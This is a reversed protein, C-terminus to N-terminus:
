LRQNMWSVYRSWASLAPKTCVQSLTGTSSQIFGTVRGSCGSSSTGGATGSGQGGIQIAMSSALGASQIQIRGSVNTNSGATYTGIVSEKYASGTKYYLAYLYSDGSAACVDDDPVFTPFYLIGGLLTASAVNRERSDPFVTYWGDMETVSGSPTGQIKDVLESYTTVGTVGTVQNTGSACVTCVTVASVDLLNKKECSTVSSQTCGGTVVPDKIGFFYQTETNTKDAVSFYRGTGFFIWIKSMDDATVTPAAFIPGVKNTGTCPAPSCSFNALVLTPVRAGGGAIGWTSLTPSGSSTTLRYMKGVWTPTTDSMVTGGYVVDTRYDLNIDVSILDGMFSSGDSTSFITVLSNNAGPGAALDVAAVRSTQASSGNYATPGSGVVMLWKANTNDTKGDASPNGRVITPYSTSLGQGSDTFMMLLKPDVDPNTIDLVFYGSYFTRTQVGSGFDATVTMPPAGSAALCAGCSGGLRFGGILITGWGNPHNADATFIRADTVKPKLDVYYVHSYDARTLWQLHPLLQYPIFGWLEQGMLPGSSNDTANRTFWGHEIVTTTTSDDGRHYYGANFAHIMGDNAGVYTVQRRNRYQQYFAAYSTDGYIVDYREKPAGVTTPTSHIPDGLKWVKLSGSVTLQRNRLTAQDACVSPECGRIFNIIGTATASDVARLYPQLTTANATTFDIQEGADVVGDNDTDVWTLIKRTSADALALQKGAEWIAAVDTLKKDQDTPTASDAKGDGNADVYKDVKVDDAAADYRNKIIKDQEYVLKGDGNTDERLNGFADLFLAQTYGTWKVDNLTSTELTSPFFYSQYLAGEGTSSTALVSVSTGSSSKRLISTITALLKDKVEDANSSEFYADPIGDPTSSGTYNNEKDWEKTKDPLQYGSDGPKDSDEFGGLKATHMLIERGAINGFTFFTYVIVNQMGPLDHGDALKVPTFAPGSYGPPIDVRVEPARLDTIHAWYAVDDLYHAGLYPSPYLNYDTKHEALLNSAPTAVNTNCTGDAAHITTNGGTCHQGHKGHAFDRIAVPVLNNDDATPQGDTVIIIFTKCCNVVKSPSAWVPTHDSGYFFPDRGCASTIYGAPCTESGILVDIESPGISGVGTAQFAVGSSGAGSFAIPYAYASPTSASNIQAIYRVGDYLSESLPTFEAPYSEGVADLMAAMNTNFTEVSTGSWDISQRSGIGTLVRGGNGTGKFELLGFRAKSGIQQIVGTPESTLGLKLEFKTTLTGDTCSTATDAPATSDDDVCFSGQMGATGGRLHIYINGPLLPTVATPVRGTYGNAGTRPTATTTFFGPLLAFTRVAVITKLSPTGTAPCTGDAARAVACDGGSMAKKLADFRRFTAWNLFNGDWETGLCGSTISAKTTGPEFRVDTADYTYCGLSNFYGTYNTDAVFSQVVPTTTGDAHVGCSTPDCARDAMSASNDMIFLINPPVVSTVFPPTSAYDALAQAYVHTTWIPGASFVLMVAAIAIIGRRKMTKEKQHLRQMNMARNM